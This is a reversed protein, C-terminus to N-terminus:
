YSMPCLPRTVAAVEVGRPGPRAVPLRAVLWDVAPVANVTPAEISLVTIEGYYAPFRGPGRSLRVVASIRVQSVHAGLMSMVCAGAITRGGAPHCAPCLEGRAHVTRDPRHNLGLHGSLVDRSIFQGVASDSSSRALSSQVAIM